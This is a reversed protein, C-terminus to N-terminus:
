PLAFGSRSAYARITRQAHNIQFNWENKGDNIHFMHLAVRFYMAVCRTKSATRWNGVIDDVMTGLLLWINSESVTVICFNGQCTDAGNGRSKLHPKVSIDKGAPRRPRHKRCDYSDRKQSFSRNLRGTSSTSMSEKAWSIGSLWESDRLMCESFTQRKESCHICALSESHRDRSTSWLM